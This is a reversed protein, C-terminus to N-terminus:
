KICPDAMPSAQVKLLDLISCRYVKSKLSIGLSSFMIGKIKGKNKSQRHTKSYMHPKVPRLHM